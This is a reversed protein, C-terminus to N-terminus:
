SIQALHRPTFHRERMKRPRLPRSTSTALIVRTGKPYACWSVKLTGLTACELVKETYPQALIPYYLTTYPLIPYYLTTYPRAPLAKQLLGGSELGQGPVSLNALAEELQRLLHFSYTLPNLNEGRVM